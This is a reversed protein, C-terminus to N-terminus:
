RNAGLQSKLKKCASSLILRKRIMTKLQKNMRAEQPNGKPRWGAEVPVGPRDGAARQPSPTQPMLSLAAEQGCSQGAVVTLPCIFVVVM